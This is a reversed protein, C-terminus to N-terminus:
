EENTIGLLTVGKYIGSANSNKTVQVTINTAGKKVVNTVDIVFSEDWGKGDPALTHEGVKQGNAYVVADGDVAGFFLLVKGKNLRSLGFSKRYWATGHYSPYGQDQWTATANITKWDKDDFEPAFYKKVAGEKQPDTIFKWKSDLGMRLQMHPYEKLVEARAADAPAMTRLRAGAPMDDTYIDLGKPVFVSVPAGSDQWYLTEGDYSVTAAKANPVVITYDLKSLIIDQTTVRLLYLTDKKADFTIDGNQYFLGQQKLRFRTNYPEYLRYGVFASGAQVSEPKITIKGAESAYILIYGGNPLSKSSAPPAKDTSVKVFTSKPQNSYWKVSQLDFANDPTQRPESGDFMLAAVQAGDRQLPSETEPKIYGGNVLRWCLVTFNDEFLQFRAKQPATMPQAAAQLLVKELEAYHPAYLYKFLIERVNYRGSYSYKQYFDGAYGDLKQYFDEMVAGAKEGYARTLWERQLDNANLGPNWLMKAGIYNTIASSSWNSNGYLDFGKIHNKRLNPFIYNLIEPSPSTVIGATSSLTNPLDYYYWNSPAVKAWNNMVYDFRERVKPDYMGFAYSPSMAVMPIFNEPLTM